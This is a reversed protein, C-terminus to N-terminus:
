DLIRSITSKQLLSTALSCCCLCSKFLIYLFSYSYEFEDSKVLICQISGSQVAGSKGSHMAGRVVCPRRKAHIGTLIILSQTTSENVQLVIHVLNHRILTLTLSLKYIQVILQSMEIKFNPWKKATEGVQGFEKLYNRQFLLSISKQELETWQINLMHSSWNQFLFQPHGHENLFLSSNFIGWKPM